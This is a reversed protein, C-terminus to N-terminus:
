LMRRLKAPHQTVAALIPGCGQGSRKVLARQTVLFEGKDNFVYCSFALHLPTDAHHTGLKEAVGTSQGNEDCLVVLEKM